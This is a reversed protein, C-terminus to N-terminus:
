HLSSVMTEFACAEMEEDSLEVATVLGPPSFPKQKMLEARVWFVYGDAPLVVRGYLRFKVAQNISIAQLGDQLDGAMPSPVAGGFLESAETM